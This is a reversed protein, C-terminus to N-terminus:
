TVIQIFACSGGCLWISASVRGALWSSIYTRWKFCGEPSTLVEVGSFNNDGIISAFEVKNPSCRSSPDTFFEVDINSKSWRGFGVRTFEWVVEIKGLVNSRCLKCNWVRSSNSTTRFNINCEM